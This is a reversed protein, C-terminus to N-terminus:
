HTLKFEIFKLLMAVIVSIVILLVNRKRDETSKDKLMLARIGRIVESRNIWLIVFIMVQYIIAARLAGENVDYFIDQSIVNL